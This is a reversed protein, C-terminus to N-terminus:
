LPTMRVFNRLYEFRWRKAARANAYELVPKADTNIVIEGVDPIKEELQAVLNQQIPEISCFIEFNRFDEHTKDGVWCIKYNLGAKQLTNLLILNGEATKDKLYGYTNLVILGDENLLSKLREFSEVSLVHSPTTEGHFLDLMVLDFKKNIGYLAHRADDQIIEVGKNLSFYDKAVEVVRPDLEVATVLMNRKAFENALVGGGLGLLLVNKPKKGLTDLNKQILSTYELKSEGTKLSMASQIVNNMLLLRCPERETNTSFQYLDDRIELKGLLGESVYVSNTKKAASYILGAACVFYILTSFYNKGKIFYIVPFIVLLGSVLLLSYQLGLQPILYFGTLFCFLIGGVTSIAYVEGARKGSEEAKETLSKILLPSVMGMLFVPPLLVVASGILVAPILSTLGALSLFLPSFFPLICMYVAAFLVTTFLIKESNVKQSLKGGFFYGGALGGLTLAMVCTWVYLSTGFYPALIKAGILETAMVAGGETFSLAFLFRKKGPAIM